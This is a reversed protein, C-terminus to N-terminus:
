ARHRTAKNRYQTAGDAIGSQRSSADAHVPTRPAPLLKGANEIQHQADKLQRDFEFNQNGPLEDMERNRDLNITMTEDGDRVIMKREIIDIGDDKFEGLSKGNITVKEGNIEVKLSINTDGKSRIIIEQQENKDPREPREKQDHSNQQAFSTFGMTIFIVAIAIFIVKKM